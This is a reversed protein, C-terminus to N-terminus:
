VVSSSRTALFKSILHAEWNVSTVVPKSKVLKIKANTSTLKARLEPRKKLVKELLHELEAAPVDGLRDELSQHRPPTCISIEDEPFEESSSQSSLPDLMEMRRNM